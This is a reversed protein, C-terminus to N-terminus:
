SRLWIMGAATAAAALAYQIWRSYSRQTLTEPTLKANKSSDGFLSVPGPAADVRTVTATLKSM